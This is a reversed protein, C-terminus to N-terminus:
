VIKIRKINHGKQPFQHGTRAASVGMKGFGNAHKWHGVLKRFQQLFNAEGANVVLLEGVANCHDVQRDLLFARQGRFDLRISFSVKVNAVSERLFVCVYKYRDTAQQTYHNQYAPPEMYM